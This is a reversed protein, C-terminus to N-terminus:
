RVREVGAPTVIWLEGPVLPRVRVEPRRGDKEPRGYRDLAPAGQTEVLPTRLHPPLIVEPGSRGRVVVEAGELQAIVPAESPHDLQYLSLGVLREVNRGGVMAVAERLGDRLVYAGRYSDPLAVLYAPTDDDTQTLTDGLERALRETMLGAIRWREAVAVTYTGLGLTAAVLVAWWVRRRIVSAAAALALAIGLGPLYLYRDNFTSTLRIGLMVVPLMATLTWAVGFRMAVDHRRLVAVWGMALSVLGLVLAVLSRFPQGLVLDRAFDLLPVVSYALYKLPLPYTLFLNRVYLDIPYDGGVLAGVAHSRLLVYGGLVVAFPWLWAVRTRVWAAWSASSGVPVVALAVPLLVAAEKSLLSLGFAMLAGGLFRRDRREVATVYLLATLLAFFACLLDARGSVWAVAEVRRPHVAFLLAALAAAAISSRGSTVRRALWFLLVTNVAHLVINFLHFPPPWPGWIRSEIGLLVFHLPRYFNTGPQNEIITARIFEALPRADHLNRHVFVIDTSAFFAPLVRLFPVAAGLLLVLVAFRSARATDADTAAWSM